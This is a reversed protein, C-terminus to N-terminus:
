LVMERIASTLRDRMPQFRALSEARDQVAPIFGGYIVYAASNPSPVYLKMINEDFRRELMDFDMDNARRIADMVGDVAGDVSARQAQVENAMLALYGSSKLKKIFENGFGQEASTVDSMARRNDIPVLHAKGSRDEVVLMNTTIRNIGTVWDFVAMTAVNSLLHEPVGSPDDAEFTAVPDYTGDQVDAELERMDGVVADQISQTLVFLTDSDTGANAPRMYAAPLGLLFAVENAILSHYDQDPGSWEAPSHSIFYAKDDDRRDIYRVTLERDGKSVLLQKDFRESAFELAGMLHSDPVQGIPAGDLLAMGYEEIKSDTVPEYRNISPTPDFGARLHNASVAVMAELGSGRGPDSNGALGTEPTAAPTSSGDVKSNLYGSLESALRIRSEADSPRMM